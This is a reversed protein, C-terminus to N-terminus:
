ATKAEGQDISNLLDVVGQTIETCGKTFLTEDHIKKGALMESTRVINAVLPVAAQLKQAGTSGPIAAFAAEIQVVLSGISTLDNIGTAAVAPAKGAGLFPIVIPGVGAAVGAVNAIIQGLKKLFSTVSM